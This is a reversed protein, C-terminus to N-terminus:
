SFIGHVHWGDGRSPHKFVWLTQGGRVRAVFYDRRVDRGEWWGCEIREPGDMLVVRPHTQRLFENLPQPEPLLWLPRPAPPTLECAKAPHQGARWAYEPRHDQYPRLTCVADDGLRAALRECLESDELAESGPFLSCSHAALAATEDAALSIAEVQEPLDIRELRARLLVALHAPDRSPTSLNLVLVSAANDEHHLEVRLRMVGLGRGALWGVLSSILRKAGFLLAHVEHAPAPLELRSTFREPTIFPMQPDPLRGLARDLTDVLTQGFRRALGDRPLQMLAGVHHIGLDALTELASESYVITDVPLTRLERALLKATIITRAQDARALMLAATPTPAASVTATFGLALLGARITTLLMELGDFLALGAGVELLVADACPLSLMPSFQSAWQAIEELTRLESPPNRPQVILGPALALATSVSMGTGIGQDRAAGNAAVIRPRTGLTAIALAAKSPDARALTELPLYPLHLCVWLM